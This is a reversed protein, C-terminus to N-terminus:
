TITELFDTLWFLRAEAELGASTEAASIRLFIEIFLKYLYPLSIHTTTPEPAQGSPATLIMYKSIDADFRPSCSLKELFPWKYGRLRQHLHFAIYQCVGDKLDFHLKSCRNAITGVVNWVEDFIPWLITIDM